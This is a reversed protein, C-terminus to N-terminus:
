SGVVVDYTVLARDAHTRGGAVPESEGSEDSTAEGTLTDHDDLSVTGHYRYSATSGNWSGRGSQRLEVRWWSILKKDLYTLLFASFRACRAPDWQGYLEYILVLAEEAAMDRQDETLHGNRGLAVNARWRAFERVDKIDELAVPTDHNRHETM